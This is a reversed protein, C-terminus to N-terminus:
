AALSIPEILTPDDNPARSSNVRQSVPVKNLMDEAAPVLMEKGASGDLWAEFQDPRLLVPMRDHVEAVFKNPETIIMTCSRITEGSQRDKWEDWLGATTLIPSGDRATFYYPQPKKKKNEPEDYHWEYYGSVPILCRRRKFAERFFPKTDVTEARANFTALRLEKLPKGWWQPILGWRMKEFVRRGDRLLITSTPDTPCHNYNPQMNSQPFGVSLMYLKWLQEWTYMDTFRGCM